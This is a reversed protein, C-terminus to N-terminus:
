SSAHTNDDRHRGFRMFEDRKTSDNWRRKGFRMFQRKGADTAPLALLYQRLSQRKLCDYNTLTDDNTHEKRGFRMFRKGGDDPHSDVGGDRRFRAFNADIANDSM